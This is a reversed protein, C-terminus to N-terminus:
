FENILDETNERLTLHPMDDDDDCVEDTRGEQPASTPDTVDLLHEQGDQSPVAEAVGVSAVQIRARKPMIPVPSMPSGPSSDFSELMSLNRRLTSSSLPPPSSPRDQEMNEELDSDEDTPASYPDTVTDDKEDGGASKPEKTEFSVVGGKSTQFELEEELSLIKEKKTNLLSIFRGYLTREWEDKVNALEKVKAIAKNCDKRLSINENRLEEISEECASLKQVLKDLIEEYTEAVAVKKVNVSGLKAFVGDAVSKKWSFVNNELCYTFSSLERSNLKQTGLATKMEENYQSSDLGFEQIISSTEESSLQLCFVDCILYKM